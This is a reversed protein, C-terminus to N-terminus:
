KHDRDTKRLLPPLFMLAIARLGIAFNARSICVFKDRAVGRHVRIVKAKAHADYYLLSNLISLKLRYQISYTSLLLLFNIGYM